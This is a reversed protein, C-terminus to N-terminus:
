FPILRESLPSFLSITAGVTASLAATCSFTIGWLLGRYFPILGKSRLSKTPIKTPSTNRSKYLYKGSKLFKRPVPTQQLSTITSM